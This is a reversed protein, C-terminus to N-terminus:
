VMLGGSQVDFTRGFAQVIWFDAFHSIDGGGTDVRIAYDGPSTIEAGIFRNNNSGSLLAIGTRTEDVQDGEGGHGTGINITGGTAYFTGAQQSWLFSDQLFSADVNYVLRGGARLSAVLYVDAATVATGVVWPLPTGDEQVVRIVTSSQVDAYTNAQVLYACNSGDIM